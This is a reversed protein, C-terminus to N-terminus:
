TIHMISSLLSYLIIHNAFVIYYSNEKEYQKM